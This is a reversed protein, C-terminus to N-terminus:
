AVSGFGVLVIVNDVVAVVVAAWGVVVAVVSVSGGIAVVSGGCGGSVVVATAVVRGGNAVAGFVTCSDSQGESCCAPM